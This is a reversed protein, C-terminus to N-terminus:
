STYTSTHASASKTTKEPHKRIGKEGGRGERFFLLERAHYLRKSEKEDESLWLRPTRGQMKRAREKTMLTVPIEAV